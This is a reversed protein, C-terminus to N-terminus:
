NVGEARTFTTKGVFPLIAMKVSLSLTRFLNAIEPRIPIKSFMIVAFLNSSPLVGGFGLVSQIGFPVVFDEQAPVYLNGVAEPVYFVNYTKPEIELMLVPDPNLIANVELGFQHVLQSIMPLQAVVQESPLPIAQHGASNRRSNWEPKDGVTGLLTLCKTKPSEPVTGLTSGIFDRCAEDLAGYPHTKYFRVLACNNEGTNADVLHEYLYHVIKHAVEEMSQAGAGLRRLVVSCETMNQLTFNNLNYM